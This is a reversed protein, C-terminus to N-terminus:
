LSKRAFWKESEECITRFRRSFTAMTGIDHTADPDVILELETGAEELHHAFEMDEDYLAEIGGLMMFVPPLQSLGEKPMCGPSLWPSDLPLPCRKHYKPGVKMASVGWAPFELVVIDYKMGNGGYSRSPKKTDYVYLWPSLLYLGAVGSPYSSKHSLAETIHKGDTRLYHELQMTLWAGYSDGGIFIQSPHYGYHNILHLYGALAQVITVPYPAFPALNYDVSFMDMKGIQSISKALTQGMFPDGASFTVGAGGHFYLLVPQKQSGAPGPKPAHSKADKMFWLGRIRTKAWKPEVLAPGNYMASDTVMDEPSTKISLIGKFAELPPPNFWDRDHRGRKVMEEVQHIEASPMAVIGGPGSNNLLSLFAGLMNNSERWGHERPPIPQMGFRCMNRIARRTLYVGVTEMVTWKKYRGPGYPIMCRLIVFPLLLLTTPVFYGHFLLSKLIFLFYTVKAPKAKEVAHKVAPSVTSM